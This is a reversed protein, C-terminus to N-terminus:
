RVQADGHVQPRGVRGRMQVQGLPVVGKTCCTRLRVCCCCCCSSSYLFVQKKLFRFYFIYLNLVPCALVRTRLLLLLVFFFFFLYVFISRFFPCLFVLQMMVAARQNSTNYCIQTSQWNVEIRRLSHGFRWQRTQVNDSFFLCTHLGRKTSTASRVYM